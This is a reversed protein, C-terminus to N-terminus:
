TQTRVTEDSFIKSYTARATRLIKGQNQWSSLKLGIWDRQCFEDNTSDYLGSIAKITIPATQEHLIKWLKDYDRKPAAYGVSASLPARPDILDAAANFERARARLWAVVEAASVGNVQILEQLSSM